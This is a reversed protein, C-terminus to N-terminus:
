RWGGPPVYSAATGGLYQQHARLWNGFGTGLPNNADGQNLGEAAFLNGNVFNQGNRVGTFGDGTVTRYKDTGMGTGGSMDLRQYGSTPDTITPLGQPNHSVGGPGATTPPLRFPGFSNPPPITAGDPGVTTPPLRFPGLGASSDFTMGNKLAGPSAQPAQGQGFAQYSPNAGPKNASTPAQYGFPKNMPQGMGGKGQASSQYTSARNLGSTPQGYGGGSM